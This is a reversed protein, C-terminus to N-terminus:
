GSQILPLPRFCRSQKGQSMSDETNTMANNYPTTSLSYEVVFQSSAVRTGYERGANRVLEPSDTRDCKPAANIQM